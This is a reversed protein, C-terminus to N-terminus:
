SIVETVEGIDVRLGAVGLTCVVKMKSSREMGFKMKPSNITKSFFFFWRVQVCMGCTSNPAGAWYPLVMLAKDFTGHHGFRTQHCQAKYILMVDRTVDCSIM